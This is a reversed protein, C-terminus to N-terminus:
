RLRCVRAHVGCERLDIVGFVAVVRDLCRLAELTVEARLVGLRDRLDGVVEVDQQLEKL